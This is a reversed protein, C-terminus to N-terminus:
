ACSDSLLEFRRPGKNEELVLILSGELSGQGGDQRQQHPKKGRGM